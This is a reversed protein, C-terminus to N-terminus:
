CHPVNNSRHTLRYKTNRINKCIRCYRKNDKSPVLNDGSYPHGKPCHIKNRQNDGTNGRNINEKCTVAELHSPNVCNRNRCLHDLELDKRIDGNWYVFSLRHASETKGNLHFLGYGDRLSGKWLWCGTLLDLEIHKQFHQLQKHNM